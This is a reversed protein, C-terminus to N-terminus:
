YLPRRMMDPEVSSNNWDTIKKPVPISPRLDRNANKLTSGKTDFGQFKVADVFNMNSLNQPRFNDNWGAVPKPLLDASTTMAGPPPTALKVQGLSAVPSVLAGPYPAYGEKKDLAYKIILAFVVLGAAVKIYQTDSM